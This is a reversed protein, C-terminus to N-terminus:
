SGALLSMLMRCLIVGNQLILCVEATLGIACAATMYVDPYENSHSGYNQFEIGGIVKKGGKDVCRSGVEDFARLVM